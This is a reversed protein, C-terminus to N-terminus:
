NASISVLRRTDWEDELLLEVCLERDREPKLHPHSLAVYLKDPDSPFIKKRLSRKEIQSSAWEEEKSAVDLVSCRLLVAILLFKPKLVKKFCGKHCRLKTNLQPKKIPINM